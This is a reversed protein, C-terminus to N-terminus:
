VGYKLKNLRKKLKEFRSHVTDRTIKHDPTSLKEAITSESLGMKKLYLLEIQDKTLQSEYQGVFEDWKSHKNPKKEGDFDMKAPDYTSDPICDGRSLSDLKGEDECFIDGQNDIHRYYVTQKNTWKDDMGVLITIWNADVGDKGALIINGTGYGEYTLRPDKFDTGM